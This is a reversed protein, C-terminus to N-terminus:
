SFLIGSLKRRAMLTDPDVPGWAEFFQLLQKRAAGDNWARDARISDLLQDAAERRKNQANFGIALEIRADHDAPNAAIRAQLGALDGVSSAQEAVELAARAAVIAPHNESQAPAQGLAARAQELDGLAILARVLGGCAKVDAPDISLAQAFGEGATQADGAALAAEAEAVLEEGEGGLPGVLREIFGKIQSEPLAGMFGDAPQGKQFAIVAPISQIGSSGTGIVAIRKGAMDVPERPWLSTQVWQGTFDELGPFEPAKPESLCGSAAIVFRASVRDGRNTELHWRQEGEDFRVSTVRTNFAIDRRLDFRQAVHEIYSLIEPQTAYRESWHWEDLLEPSFSYCYDLSEVDCRAGPYRNWFWVGGVDPGAEFGALSLGLGRLRYHAYLGSFGAGIIVVDVESESRAQAQNDQRM